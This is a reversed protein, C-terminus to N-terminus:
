PVIYTKKNVIYSILSKCIGYKIGLDKYSFGLKRDNRLDEAQEFTLRRRVRAAKLAKEKRKEPPMDMMNQSHTGIDINDWSSDLKNSNLHRVEIGPYFMDFKFKQFAQLRYCYLNSREGELKISFEPYGNTGIRCKLMVGYPSKAKGQKTIRYGKSYAALMINNTKNMVGIFNLELVVLVRRDKQDSLRTKTLPHIM